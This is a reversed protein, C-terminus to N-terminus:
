CNMPSFTIIGYVCIIFATKVILLARANILSSQRQNCIEPHYHLIKIRKSIRESDIFVSFAQLSKLLPTISSKLVALKSMLIRDNENFTRDLVKATGTGRFCVQDSAERLGEFPFPIKM